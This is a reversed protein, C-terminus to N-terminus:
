VVATALRGTVHQRSSTMAHVSADVDLPDRRTGAATDASGLYQQAGGDGVPQRLAPTVSPHRGWRPLYRRLERRVSSHLAIYLLGNVAASSNYIWTAAFDLTEPLKFCCTGLLLKLM